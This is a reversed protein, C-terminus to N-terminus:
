VLGKLDEILYGRALIVMFYVSFSSAIVYPKIVASIGLSYEKFRLKRVALVVAINCVIILFLAVEEPRRTIWYFLDGVILERALYYLGVIISAQMLSLMVISNSVYSNNESDTM